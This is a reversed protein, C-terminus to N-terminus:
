FFSICICVKPYAYIMPWSILLAMLITATVPWIICVCVDAHIFCVLGGMNVLSMMEVLLFGSVFGLLRKKRMATLAVAMGALGALFMTYPMAILFKRLATHSAGKALPDQGQTSSLVNVAIIGLLAATAM